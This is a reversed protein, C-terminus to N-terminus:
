SRQAAIPKSASRAYIPEMLRTDSYREAKYEVKEEPKELDMAPAAALMQNAIALSIVRDDHRGSDAEIRGNPKVAFSRMEHLTEASEVFLESTRLAMDLAACMSKKNAQTTRWGLKRTPLKTAEDLIQQRYLLHQPYDSRQLEDLVHTGYGSNSEVGIYANNFFRGLLALMRGFEDPTIKGNLHCVQKGTARDLVDASSNDNKDNAPAGELEIGEAVDAGIVYQRKRQPREWLRYLGYPNPVLRTEKNGSLDEFVRLDCRMPESVVVRELAEPAFFRSGTSIFAEDATTPYQEKFKEANRDLKNAITLRRWEVQELKLEHKAVLRKEIDTLQAYYQERPIPLAATYEDQEFWPLFIKTYVSDPNHWENYFWGSMGNAVSEVIISTNPADPVSNLLGARADETGEPWRSVESLHLHHITYSHGAATKGATEVLIKGEHPTAFKLEKRNSAITPIAARESPPLDNYFKQYIGFIHEASDADHSVVMGAAGRTFRVGHFTNAASVTSIGGQRYKLVLVRVPLGVKRQKDIADQVKVQNKNLAFAISAVTLKDKIKLCDAFWKRPDRQWRNLDLQTKTIM